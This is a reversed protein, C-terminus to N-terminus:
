IRPFPQQAQKLIEEFRPDRRLEDLVPNYKLEGYFEGGPLQVLKAFTQLARDNEGAYLHMFALRRLREVNALADESIPHQEVSKEAIRLAEKKKGLLMKVNSLAIILGGQEDRNISRTLRDELRKEADRAAQEDFPLKTVFALQLEKDWREDQLESYKAADTLVRRCQEFDHKWFPMYFLPVFDEPMQLKANELQKNGAAVDGRLRLSVGHQMAAISAFRPFHKAIREVMQDVEDWWHLELAAVVAFMYPDPDRPNLESSRVFLAYAEQWRGFRRYLLARTMTVEASNPLSKAAQELTALARTFDLYGYYIIRAQAHLTEGAEPAIRQAEKLAAEARAIYETSHLDVGRYLQLNAESLAWYAGAFKPDRAVAQELLQVARTFDDKFKESGADDTTEMLARARIYSEFAAIDQTPRRALETSERPSLKAGLQNTIREAIESQFSLVEALNGDYTEAWAHTDTRADILEVTVHIHNAERQVSGEVVYNVGLEDAIQKLNRDTGPKYRMVSDRSIVKLDAIKALDLLVERYVGGAFVADQESPSLNEFPLVAVSKALKAITEAAAQAHLKAQRRTQWIAFGVGAVVVLTVAASILVRRRRIARQRRLKEPLARNGIGDAYLNAVRVRVGHKVKAEGLDHIQAKWEAYQSLDDAARASLLIHGADGCDMVRQAMNVGAGALNLKNNVDEVADVPGSHIGMRLPLETRGRLARSIAVACRVPADPSTFFALVMGDGTPIRVLKGEAEATRFQGTERVIRTLEQLRERQENTLLKSYGVIDMFLVHAIELRPDDAKLSSM